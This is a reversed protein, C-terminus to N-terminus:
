RGEEDLCRRLKEPDIVAVEDAVRMVPIGNRTIRRVCGDECIVRRLAEAAYEDLSRGNAKAAQDVLRGLEDDITLTVVFL